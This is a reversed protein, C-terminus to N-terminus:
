SAVSRKRQAVFGAAARALPFEAGVDPHPLQPGPRLHHVREPVHRLPLLQQPVVALAVVPFVVLLKRLSAIIRHALLRICGFAWGLAFFLSVLCRVEPAFGFLLIRRILTSPKVFWVSRWVFIMPFAIIDEDFRNGFGNTIQEGGPTGLRGPPCRASRSGHVWLLHGFLLFPLSSCDKPVRCTCARLWSRVRMPLM